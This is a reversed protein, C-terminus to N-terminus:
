TAVGDWNEITWGRRRAIRGLRLDPNVAIPRSVRLMMPLDNYSDTYFASRDLDVRTEGAWREAWDVKGQGFCLPAVIRGTFRGGSVELQSCLVADLGLTRSLPEAIYRTASTLLVVREGNARHAEIARRAPPAITAEIEERYWAECKSIMEDESDGELDAVLRRSLTEMDLVALKYQMAWGFARLLQFRSIEGRRRLFRIWRTGSNVRLVTRDMDFFAAPPSV